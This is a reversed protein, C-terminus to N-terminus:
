DAGHNRAFTEAANKRRLELTLGQTQTQGDTMRSDFARDFLIKAATTNGDLALAVLRETVQRLQEPNMITLFAGKLAQIQRARSDPKPEDNM